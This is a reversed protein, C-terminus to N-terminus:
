CGFYNIKILYIPLIKLKLQYQISFIMEKGVLNPSRTLFHAEDEIEQNTCNKCIRENRPINTYRGTEIVLRHASTRLKCISKRYECKKVLTLYKELKFNTKVLQKGLTPPERRSGGGSISTAM